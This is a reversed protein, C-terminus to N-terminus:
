DLTRIAVIKWEKRENLQFITMQRIVGSRKRASNAVSYRFRYVTRLQDSGTLTASELELLQYDRIPWNQRYEAVQTRISQPTLDNQDFYILVSPAYANLEAELDPLCGSTLFLRISRLAIHRPGSSILFRRRVWGEGYMSAIRLWDENAPGETKHALSIGSAGLPLSGVSSYEMGPGTRINLTEGPPIGDVVLNSEEKGITGSTAAHGAESPVMTTLSQRIDAPAIKMELVLEAMKHAATPSIAALTKMAESFGKWDGHLARCRVIGDWARENDPQLFAAREFSQEADRSNRRRVQLRAIGIWAEPHKPDLAISRRFCEEAEKDLSLREAALGWIFQASASKPYKQGLRSALKMEEVTTMSGDGDRLKVADPDSYFEADADTEASVSPGPAPRPAPQPAPQTAIHEKKILGDASQRLAALAEVPIAFNLNQSNGNVSSAMVGIVKGESDLLPSGSSGPSIAASTQLLNSGKLLAGDPDPRKASIIGHSLTGALGSPSGYVAVQQGIEVKAAGALELFPLDTAELQIIALDSSSDEALVRSVRFAAGQETVVIMRNGSKVVHQCTAVLGDPSIAFGTGTGVVEDNEELLRIQFVSPRVKKAIAALDVQSNEGVNVAPGERTRGTDLTTSPIAPDNENSQANAPSPEPAPAGRSQWWLGTGFILLLGAVSAALKWAPFDTRAPEEVTQQVPIWREARPQQARPLVPAPRQREIVFEYPGIQLRGPLDLWTGVEDGASAMWLRGQPDCELRCAEDGIGAVPLAIEMGTAAGIRAFQGPRLRFEVLLRLEDCRM